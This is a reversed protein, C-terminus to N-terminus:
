DGGDSDPARSAPRSGGHDDPMVSAKEQSGGAITDPWPDWRSPSPSGAVPLRTAAKSCGSSGCGRAVYSTAPMRRADRSGTQSGSQAYSGGHRRVPRGLPRGLPRYPPSRVTSSLTRGRGPEHGRAISVSIRRVQARNTGVRAQHPSSAQVSCACASELTKALSAVGVGLRQELPLQRALLVVVAQGTEGVSGEKELMNRLLESGPILTPEGYEHNTEIIELRHVVREPM